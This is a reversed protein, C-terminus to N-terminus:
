NSLLVKEQGFRGNKSESWAENQPIEQPEKLEFFRIPISNLPLNGDLARASLSLLYEEVDSDNAVTNVENYCQSLTAKAIELYAKQFIEL